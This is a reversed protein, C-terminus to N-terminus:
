REGCFCYTGPQVVRVTDGIVVEAEVPTEIEYCWCTGDKKWASRIQGYRSEFSVTLWDLREDPIPAIKVKAYGPYEEVTRIGAAVTYIWDVVAGYLYHNFSNMNESWFDGNEMIGDWHEWTTTAGKTVPYLWSPYETRLLLSYAIDSHGFDSLAHLLYPTGLFGTQLKMGDQKVKEALQDSLLQCDEGLRFHVALAYETQTYYVPYTKRFTQVINQYLTEYEAVDEGLVKGSKIVLLTSYAYFATAIVEKRSSGEYSGSPADLGLWDGFHFGGIWLYEVETHNTIYDVFKRMCQFQKRLIETNGYAMYLEWPCITAVDGWGSSMVDDKWIDPIIPPILGDERQEARMDSLWKMFFCEIDFNLAAARVFGQADGTWGLREDRQPCDTPVDLFNSKQSWTVNSFFQNLLPNSSQIYGTQKIDSYVAIARFNELRANAAGGPFEDMRIYRFGYFTLRPHYTQRGDKCVYVYNAKAKRYNANYFNGHKDLVEAHSLRVTDGAHADVTVEVYGTIEQGFDIVTEGKPTVIIQTASFVEHELIEEGEQPVLTDSPGEFEEVKEFTQSCRSADCVEGDYIESFLIESESAAWSTDSVIVARSGDSYTLELQAILGAPLKSQEEMFEGNRIGRYWGKGVLVCLENEEQLLGTVDYEQYQLRHSYSTWGPALVYRSVREGNIKAEYIGMATVFLRAAQIEKNLKFNKSFRPVVDGMNRTPRIWKAQWNM